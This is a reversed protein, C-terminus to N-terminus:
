TSAYKTQETHELMIDHDAMYKAYESETLTLFSLTQM